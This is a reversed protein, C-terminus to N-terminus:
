KKRLEKIEEHMVIVTTTLVLFLLVILIDEFMKLNPEGQLKSLLAFSYISLFATTGIFINFVIDHKPRKTKM